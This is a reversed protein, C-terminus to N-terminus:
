VPRRGSGTQLEQEPKGRAVDEEPYFCSFHRGLIEKARYGKNREAGTNWTAVHGAPDLMFIAYEQVGEILLRFREEAAQLSENTQPLEATREVFAIKWATTPRACNRNWGGAHPSTATPKSCTPANPTASWCWAPRWPLGKATKQPTTWSARGYDKRSWRSVFSSRRGTAGTRLLDHSVQGVAQERSFGYLREAGRNWFTIPGNWQWVLMADYAQDILAAQRRETQINAEAKRMAAHMAGGLLAIGLSTCCYLLMGVQQDRDALNFHGRPTTLFLDLM